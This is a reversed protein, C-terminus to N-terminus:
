LWRVSAAGHWTRRRRLPTLGPLHALAPAFVLAFLATAVARTAGDPGLAGLSAEWSRGLSAAHLGAASLARTEAVLTHWRALVLAAAFAILTRALSERVEVMSRLSRVVLVTGLMAALVAPAPEISVALRGAAVALAVRPLDHVELRSALTLLLVLSLDPVWRALLPQSLLLGQLAELWTAWLVLLLWPLWGARNV